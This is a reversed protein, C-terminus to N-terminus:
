RGLVYVTTYEPVGGIIDSVYRISKWSVAYGFVRFTYGSALSVSANIVSFNAPNTNTLNIGQGQFYGASVIQGAKFYDPYTSTGNQTAAGYGAAYGLNTNIGSATNATTITYGGIQGGSGGRITGATIGGGNLYGGTAGYLISSAYVSGGTITISSCTVAGSSTVKFAGKGLAIGDTGIYVGNHTTDALSTMGNHINSSDIAFGSSSTGIYGSTATIAGEINLGNSDASLVTKSGSFLSWSSDTLNWGFSASSGGSKSVKAMINTANISILGSLTEESSTARVVEATINDEAITLRARTYASERKFERTARPEYTFEHDVEEDYPASVDASMLRSHRTTINLALGDTGNVSIADGIEVSPDLFAGDAEYAQYRFGRLKLSALINNAMEQTGSPIDVDLVYGSNNGATYEVEAGDSNRGAHVVVGTYSDLLRGVELSRM